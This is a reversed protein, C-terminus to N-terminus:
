RPPFYSDVTFDGWVTYTLSVPAAGGNEWLLSYGGERENTFCGKDSSDTLEVLYQVEDDFHSHVDFALDAGSTWDWCFTGNAPMQTNIEFFQGPPVSVTEYLFGTYIEGTSVQISFSWAAEVALGGMVTWGWRGPIVPLEGPGYQDGNPDNLVLDLGDGVFNAYAVTGNPMEFNGGTATSAIPTTTLTGTENFYATQGVQEGATPTELVNANDDGSDACGALALVLFMTVIIKQM